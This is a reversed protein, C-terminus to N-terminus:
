EGPARVRRPTRFHDTGEGTLCAAATLSQHSHPPAFLCFIIIYIFPSYFYILNFLIFVGEHIGKLIYIYMYRERRSQDARQFVFIQSLFLVFLFEPACFFFLGFFLIHTRTNKKQHVPYSTLAPQPKTTQAISRVGGGMRKEM